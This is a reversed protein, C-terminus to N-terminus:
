GKGLPDGAGSGCEESTVALDRAEGVFVAQASLGGVSLGSGDAVVHVDLRVALFGEAETLLEFLGVRAAISQLPVEVAGDEEVRIALGLEGGGDEPRAAAPTTRTPSRSTTAPRVAGAEVEAGAGVMLVAALVTGPLRQPTLFDRALTVPGGPAALAHGAAAPFPWRAPGQPPGGAGVTNGWVARAQVMGEL